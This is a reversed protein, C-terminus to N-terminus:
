SRNRILELRKERDAIMEKFKKKQEENLFNMINREATENIAKIEKMKEDQSLNEKKIVANIKKSSADFEKKVIVMQLEDLKLETKLKDTTKEVSAVREKEIEDDSKERNQNQMGMSARGGYPNDYGSGYMGNRSGMMQSFGIQSIFLCTLIIYKKM